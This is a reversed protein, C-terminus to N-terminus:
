PQRGPGRGREREDRGGISRGLEDKVDLPPFPSSFLESNQPGERAVIAREVGKEEDGDLQPPPFPPFIEPAM